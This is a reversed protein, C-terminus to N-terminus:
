LGLPMRLAAAIARAIDEQIAFIDTLERDYSETWLTVGDEAHVLEATIRVRNGTMRVSGDILFSVNLSRGINRFDRTQGKFRFASSRGMVRLGPIKVLAATVQESIGDA